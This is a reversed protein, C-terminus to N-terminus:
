QNFSIIRGPRGDLRCNVTYKRIRQSERDRDERRPQNLMWEYDLAEDLARSHDCDPFARLRREGQEVKRRLKQARSQQSDHEKIDLLNEINAALERQRRARQAVSRRTAPGMYSRKRQIRRERRKRQGASRRQFESRTQKKFHDFQQLQAEKPNLVQASNRNVNADSELNRTTKLLFPEPRTMSPTRPLLPRLHHGTSPM